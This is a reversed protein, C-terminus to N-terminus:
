HEFINLLSAFDSIEASDVSIGNSKEATSTGSVASRKPIYPFKLSSIGQGGACGSRTQSGGLRRDLPYTLGVLVLTLIYETTDLSSTVFTHLKVNGEVYVM